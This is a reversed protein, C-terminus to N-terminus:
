QTPLELQRCRVRLVRRGAPWEVENFVLVKAPKGPPTRREATLQAHGRYGSRGRREYEAAYFGFHRGLDALEIGYRRWCGQQGGAITLVVGALIALM